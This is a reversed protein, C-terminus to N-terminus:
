TTVKSRNFYRQLWHFPLMRFILQIAIFLYTGVFCWQLLGIVRYLNRIVPRIGESGYFISFVNLANYTLPELYALLLFLLLWLRASKRFQNSGASACAFILPLSFTCFILRYSFGPRLIFCGVVILAGMVFFAEKTRLRSLPAEGGRARARMWYFSMAGGVLGFSALNLIKALSDGLFFNKFLNIGGFTYYYNPTPISSALTGFLEGALVIQLMAAGSCTVVAAVTKYNVGYLAFIVPFAVIPYYKLVTAVAILLCSLVMGGTRLRYALPILALLLFIILDNNAREMGLLFPPSLMVPLGLLLHWPKSPRIICAAAIAFLMVFGFAVIYGNHRTIGLEHLHLWLGSYVHPRFFVDYPIFQSVAYGDAYADSASTIAYWDIFLLGEFHYHLLIFSWADEAKVLLCFVALTIAALALTLPFPKALSAKM